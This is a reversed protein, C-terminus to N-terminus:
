FDTYIEQTRKSRPFRSKIGSQTVVATGLIYDDYKIVYQGHNYKDTKIIGGEM